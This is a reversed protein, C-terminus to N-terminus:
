LGATQCYASAIFQREDDMIYSCVGRSVKGSIRGHFEGKKLNDIASAREMATAFPCCLELFHHRSIFTRKKTTLSCHLLWSSLSICRRTEQDGTTMSDRPVRWTQGVCVPTILSPDRTEADFVTALGFDGIKPIWAEKNWVFSDRDSELPTDDHHRHDIHVRKENSAILFINSPKLDRHIINQKHIYDTGELIQSFLKINQSNDFHAIGTTNLKENRQQIYEHLTVKYFPKYTLYIWQSLLRLFKCPCIQMQIFLTWCTKAMGDTLVSTHISPGWTEAYHSATSRSSTHDEDQTDVDSTLFELQLPNENSIGDDMTLRNDLGYSPSPRGGLDTEVRRSRRM